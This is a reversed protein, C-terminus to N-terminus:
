DRQRLRESLDEPLDDSWHAPKPPMPPPPPRNEARAEAAMEEWIELRMEWRQMALDDAGLARIREFLEERIRETEAPDDPPPAEALTRAAEALKVAVDSWRKAEVPDGRRSAREARKIAAEARNRAGRQARAHAIESAPPPPNLWAAFADDDDPPHEMHMEMTHGRAM